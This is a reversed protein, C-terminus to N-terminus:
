RTRAPYFVNLNAAEPDASYTLPFWQMEDWGKRLGNRVITLLRIRETDLIPGFLEVHVLGTAHWCHLSIGPEGREVEKFTKAGTAWIERKLALVQEDYAARKAERRNHEWTAADALRDMHLQRDNFVFEANEGHAKCKAWVLCLWANATARQRTRWDMEVPSGRQAVVLQTAGCTTCMATTDPKPRPKRNRVIVVEAPAEVPLMTDLDIMGPVTLTM